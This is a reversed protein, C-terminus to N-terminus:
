KKIYTWRWIVLGVYGGVTDAVWDWVDFARNAIFYHQILEIVGGYGIIIVIPLWQKVRFSKIASLALFLLAALFGVHVWKDFYVETFWNNKPLASGPLMFLSTIFVWYLILTVPSQLWRAQLIKKV